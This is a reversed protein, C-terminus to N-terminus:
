RDDTYGVLIDKDNCIIFFDESGEPKLTKAGYKSYYVKDGVKIDPKEPLDYWAMPGILFVEGRDANIAQSREDQSLIIGGKSKKAVLPKIIVREALTKELFM